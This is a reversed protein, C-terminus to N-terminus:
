VRDVVVLAAIDALLQGRADVVAVRDALAQHRDEDVARQRRM